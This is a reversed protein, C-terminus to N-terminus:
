WAIKRVQSVIDLFETTTISSALENESCQLYAQVLSHLIEAFFM